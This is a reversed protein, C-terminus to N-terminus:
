RYRRGRALVGTVALVGAVVGLGIPIVPEVDAAGAADLRGELAGDAGTVQDALAADAAGFAEGSAGDLTSAAADLNAGDTLDLTRVSGDGEGVVAEVYGAVAADADALSVGDTAESEALQARLADADEAFREYLAAGSGRAAVASIEVVRLNSLAAAATNAEVYADVDGSAARRLESGQTTIGGTVVVLAAISAVAALLLAPHAIRRTRGAVVVACALLMVLGAVLLVVALAGIPGGVSNAARAMRQEGVRRLQAARPALDDNAIARAQSLYAAGVPYGLRSNARSTEVLGAYEILGDNLANIADGDDGTAVLGADTLASSAALLERDYDARSEPDELGGSILTAAALVDAQALHTRFSTTARAIGLGQDRADAITDANRDAVWAAALSSAVLAAGAVLALAVFLRRTPLPVRWAIREVRGLLSGASAAPTVTTSL